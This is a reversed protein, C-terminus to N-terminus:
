SRTFELDIEEVPEYTLVHAERNEDRSRTLRQSHDELQAAIQFSSILRPLLERLLETDEREEM